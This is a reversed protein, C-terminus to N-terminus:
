HFTDGLSLSRNNKSATHRHRLSPGTVRRLTAIMWRWIHAPGSYPRLEKTFWGIPLVRAASSSLPTVLFSCHLSATSFSGIGVKGSPWTFSSYLLRSGVRITQRSYLLQDLQKAWLSSEAWHRRAIAATLFFRVSSRRSERMWSFDEMDALIAHTVHRIGIRSRVVPQFFLLLWILDGGTDDSSRYGM